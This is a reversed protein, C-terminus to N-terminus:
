VSVLERYYGLTVAAENEDIVHLAFGAHVIVYDGAEPRRDVVDLRVTKKVGGIEARATNGEVEIVKMPVALCM